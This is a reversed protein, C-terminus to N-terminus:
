TPLLYNYLLPQSFVIGGNGNFYPPGGKGGNHGIRKLSKLSKFRIKSVLGGVQSTLQWFSAVLFCLYRHLKAGGAITTSPKYSIQNLLYGVTRLKRRNECSYDNTM